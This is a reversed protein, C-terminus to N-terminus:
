VECQGATYSIVNGEACASCGNSFTQPIPDCPTTICQIEVLGCVPAYERTCIKNERMAQTCMVVDASDGAVAGQSPCAAFECNPGVRGVASGDPCIKADMTCAVPESETPTDPSSPESGADELSGNDPSTEIDFLSPETGTTADTKDPATAYEVGIFIGVLLVLCLIVIKQLNSM